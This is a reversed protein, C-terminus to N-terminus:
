QRRRTVTRATPMPNNVARPQATFPISPARGAASWAAEGSPVLAAPVAAACTLLLRAIGADEDEGRGPGTGERRRLVARGRAAPFAGAQAAPATVSRREDGCYQYWAPLIGLKVTCATEVSPRGHRKLIPALNTETTMAESRRMQPEASQTLPLPDLITTSAWPMGATRRTEQSRRAEDGPQLPVLWRTAGPSYWTVATAPWRRLPITFRTSPAWPADPGQIGRGNDQTHGSLNALM